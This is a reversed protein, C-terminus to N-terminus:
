NYNEACKRERHVSVLRTNTTNVWFTQEDFDDSFRAHSRGGFFQRTFSVSHYDTIVVLTDASPRFASVYAPRAHSRGQEVIM